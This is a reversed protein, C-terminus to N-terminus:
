TELVKFTAKSSTATELCAPDIKIRKIHPQALVLLNPKFETNSCKRKGLVSSSALGHEQKTAEVGSPNAMDNNTKIRKYETPGEEGTNNQRKHKGLSVFTAAVNKEMKRVKHNTRNSKLITKSVSDLQLGCDQTCSTANKASNNSTLQLSTESSIPRNPIPIAANHKTKCPVELTYFCHIYSYGIPFCSMSKSFSVLLCSPTASASTKVETSASSYVQTQATSSKTSTSSSSVSGTCPQDVDTSKSNLKQKVVNLKKELDSLSCKPRTQLNLVEM